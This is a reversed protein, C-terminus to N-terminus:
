NEPSPAPSSQNLRSHHMMWYITAVFIGGILTALLWITPGVFIPKRHAPLNTADRFIAVAFSIHVVIIIVVSCIAIGSIFLASLRGMPEIAVSMKMTDM